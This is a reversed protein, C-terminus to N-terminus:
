CRVGSIRGRSFARSESTLVLTENDLYDIAEGQPEVDGLYCPRQLDRWRRRGRDDKAASYFFVENYTRVALTTGDPSIAAGTALRGIRGDPKVGSSGLMDAVIVDRSAIAREVAAADVGFFDITGTQGKTVITVDGEPHVAIAESDHSQDPYQFRFAKAATPARQGESGLIPEAVIYVTFVSRARSNNGTDAIYLCRSSSILHPCPGSGIDEWDVPAADGVRITALLRGSRDIAYLNPGDGSDNHSWLVGPQTRSVVVGSSEHLEAPLTGLAELERAAYAAGNKRHAVREPETFLAVLGRWGVIAVIAFIVFVGAIRALHKV